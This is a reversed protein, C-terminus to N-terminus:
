DQFRFMLQSIQYYNNGSIPRADGLERWRLARAAGVKKYFGIEAELKTKGSSQILITGFSTNITENFSSDRVENIKANNDDILKSMQMSVFPSNVGFTYGLMFFLFCLISTQTITRDNTM